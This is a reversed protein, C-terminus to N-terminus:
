EVGHEHHIRETLKAILESSRSTALSWGRSRLASLIEEETFPRDSVERLLDALYSYSKEHGVLAAQYWRGLVETEYKRQLAPSSGQFGKRVKEWYIGDNSLCAVGNDGGGINAQVSLKGWMRPQADWDIDAFDAGSGFVDNAIQQGLIVIIRPRVPVGDPASAGRIERAEVPESFAIVRYSRNESGWHNVLAYSSGDSAGADGIWFGESGATFDGVVSGQHEQYTVANSFFFPMPSDWGRADIGRSHASGRDFLYFSAILEPNIDHDGQYSQAAWYNIGSYVGDGSGTLLRINNGPKRGCTDCDAILEDFHDCHDFLAGRIEATATESNFAGGYGIGFSPYKEGLYAELRDMVWLLTGPSNKTAGADRPPSGTGSDGSAGVKVGAKDLPSDSQEGGIKGM